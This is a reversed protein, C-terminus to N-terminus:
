ANAKFTLPKLITITTERAEEALAEERLSEMHRDWMESNMFGDMGRSPAHCDQLVKIVKLNHHQEAFMLATDGAKDAARVDAGANILLLAAGTANLKTARLLPTMGNEDRQEMDAGNIILDNVKWLDPQTRGTEELLDLGRQQPSVAASNFAEETM